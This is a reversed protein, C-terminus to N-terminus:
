PLHPIVSLWETLRQRLPNELVIEMLPRLPTLLNKVYRLRLIRNPPLSRWEEAENIVEEYTKGIERFVMSCLDQVDRLSDGQRPGFTLVAYARINVEDVLIKVPPVQGSERKRQCATLALCAWQLRTEAGQRDDRMRGDSLERLTEWEQWHTTTGDARASIRQLEEVSRSSFSGGILASLSM